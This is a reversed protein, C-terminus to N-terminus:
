KVKINSIKIRRGSVIKVVLITIISKESIFNVSPVEGHHKNPFYLSEWIYITIYLESERLEKFM